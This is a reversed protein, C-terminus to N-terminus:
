SFRPAAAQAPVSPQNSWRQTAPPASQPAAAADRRALALERQLRRKELELTEITEEYEDRLNRLENRLGVARKFGFAAIAMGAMFIIAVVAGAMFVQWEATVGPVASGFTSLEAEGTNDVVVAAGVVLAVAVILLGVVMM